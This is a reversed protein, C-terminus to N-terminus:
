NDSKEKLYEELKEYFSDRHIDYILKVISYSLDYDEATQQIFPDKEYM